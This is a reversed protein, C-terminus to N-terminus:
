EPKKRLTYITTLDIASWVEDKNVLTCGVDFFVYKIKDM